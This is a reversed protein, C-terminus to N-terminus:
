RYFKEKPLTEIKKLVDFAEDLNNAVVHNYFTAGLKTVRDYMKEEVITAKIENRKYELEWSPQTWINPKKPIMKECLCDREGVACRGWDLALEHDFSTFYGRKKAKAIRNRWKKLIVKVKM